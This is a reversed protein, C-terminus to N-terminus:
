NAFRRVMEHEEERRRGENTDSRRPARSFLLRTGVPPDDSLDDRAIDRVADFAMGAVASEHADLITPSAERVERARQARKQAVKCRKAKERM